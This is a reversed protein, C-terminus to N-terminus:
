RRAGCARLEAESMVPKIVCDTAAPPAAPEQKQAAVPQAAPEIAAPRSQRSAAACIRLDEESMVPKIVCEPPAALAPPAAPATEADVAVAPPIPTSRSPGSCNWMDQESMVPKIVCDGRPKPAARPTVAVAAAAVAPAPKPAVVAPAPKPPPAVEVAAPTPPAQPLEVVPPKPASIQEVLTVAKEKPAYQLVLSLEGADLRVLPEGPTVGPISAYRAADGPELLTVRLRKGITQEVLAAYIDTRAGLQERLQPGVNVEPALVRPDARTTFASLIHAEGETAATQAGAPSISLAALLLLLGARM